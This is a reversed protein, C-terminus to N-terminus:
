EGSSRWLYITALSSYPKWKQAIKEMKARKPMERLGYVRQVAKKIGLDDMPFVDTRGLSFIMFMEATWRGIGRVEDLEEIVTSDPLEEFRGLELSGNEIRECLDWLYSLKQPSLGAGALKRKDTRLYQKPTPLKGRYLKRIKNLISNAAAWSIQQSVISIVLSGYYDNTIELKPYGVRKIVLALKKDKASLYLMGKKWVKRDHISEFKGAM